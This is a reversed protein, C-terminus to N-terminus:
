GPSFILLFISLYLHKLTSVHNAIFEFALTSFADEFNRGNIRNRNSYPKFINLLNDMQKILM